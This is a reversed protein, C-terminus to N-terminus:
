RRCCSAYPHDAERQLSSQRDEQEQFLLDAPELQLLGSGDEGSEEVRGIWGPTPCVVEIAHRTEGGFRGCDQERWGAWRPPVFLHKRSLRDVSFDPTALYTWVAANDRSM